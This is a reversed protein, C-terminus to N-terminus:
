IRSITFFSYICRASAWSSTLSKPWYFVVRFSFSLFVMPFIRFIQFLSFLCLFPFTTKWRTEKAKLVGLPGLYTYWPIPWRPFSERWQSIACNSQLIRLHTCCPSCQESEFRNSALVHLNLKVVSHYHPQTQWRIRLNCVQGFSIRMPQMYTSLHVNIMQILCKTRFLTHLASLKAYM